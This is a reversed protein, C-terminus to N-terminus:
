LKKIIDLLYITGVKHKEIASFNQDFNKLPLKKPKNEDQKKPQNTQVWIELQDLRDFNDVQGEFIPFMPCSFIQM